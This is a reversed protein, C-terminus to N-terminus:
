RGAIIMNGKQFFGHYGPDLYRTLWGLLTSREITSFLPKVLDAEEHWLTGKTEKALPTNPYVRIGLQFAVRSPRTENILNCTERISQEDEGPYGVLTHFGFEMSTFGSSKEYRKKIESFANIAKLIDEIRYPKGLNKLIRPSGSEIDFPFFFSEQRWGNTRLVLDLFEEDIGKVDLYASWSDPVLSNEIVAKLIAKAHEIPRNFIDDAFMLQLLHGEGKRDIVGRLFTIEALVEDVAKLIQEAGNIVPYPCYSCRQGCGIRTRIGFTSQGTPIGLYKEILEGNQLTGIRSVPASSMREPSGGNLLRGVLEPFKEGPGIVGFCHDPQNELFVEPMLTFATGGLVTYTPSHPGKTVANVYDLLDPLYYHLGADGEGVPYTSDINRLSLGVVDWHEESLAKHILELSIKKRNRLHLHDLPGGMRTLDLIHTETFGAEKLAGQLYDLGVPYVPYVENFPTTNTDILLIRAM